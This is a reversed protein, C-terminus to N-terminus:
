RPQLHQNSDFQRKIISRHAQHSDNLTSQKPKTSTHHFSPPRLTDRRCTTDEWSSSKAITKSHPLSTISRFLHLHRPQALPAKSHDPTVGCLGGRQILPIDHRTTYHRKRKTSCLIPFLIFPHHMCRLAVVLAMCGDQAGICSFSM